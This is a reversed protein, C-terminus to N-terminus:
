LRDLINKLESKYDNLKETIYDWAKDENEINETEEAIEEAKEEAKSIYDELTSEAINSYDGWFGEDSIIYECAMQKRDNM